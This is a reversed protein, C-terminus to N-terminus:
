PFFLTFHTFPKLSTFPLDEKIEKKDDGPPRCSTQFHTNTYSQFIISHFQTAISIYHSVREWFKSVSM